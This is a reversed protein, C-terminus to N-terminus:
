VTTLSRARRFVVILLTVLALLLGNVTMVAPASFRDALAGAVLAGLPGGGRLAVM